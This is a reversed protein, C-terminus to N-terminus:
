IVPPLATPESVEVAAVTAEVVLLFALAAVCVVVVVDLPDLPVIDRDELTLVVVVVPDVLELVDAPSAEVELL